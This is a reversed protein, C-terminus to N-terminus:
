GGSAPDPAMAAVAVRDGVHVTGNAIVRTNMGRLRLARGDPSGVLRLADHGFRAAFKECGTHPKDSVELEADGIQLRTGPPLSEVSLDSDVYLQDGAQAWRAPEDGAIARAFRGNM